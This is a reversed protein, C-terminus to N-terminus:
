ILGAMAHGNAVFYLAILKIPILLVSPVAFLALSAHAPLSIILVEIQRFVPLRGIAAALRALDDWLWDELLIIIAAILVFPAALAKKLLKTRSGRRPVANM